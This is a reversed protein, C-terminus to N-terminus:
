RTVEWPEIPTPDLVLETCGDELMCPGPDADWDESRSHQWDAHDCTECYRVAM